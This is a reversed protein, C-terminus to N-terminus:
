CFSDNKEPIPITVGQINEIIAHNNLFKSLPAIYRYSWPGCSINPTSNFNNAHIYTYIYTHIHTHIYTHIHIYMCVYMCVYM